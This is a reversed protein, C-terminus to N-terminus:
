IREEKLEERQLEEDTPWSAAPPWISIKDAPNDVYCREHYNVLNGSPHNTVTIYADQDEIPKACLSCKM